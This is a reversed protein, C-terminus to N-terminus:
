YGLSQQGDPNSNTHATHRHKLTGTHAEGCSNSWNAKHLGLYVDFRLHFM